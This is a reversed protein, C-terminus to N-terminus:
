EIEATRFRMTGVWVTVTAWLGLILLGAFLELTALEGGVLPGAEASTAGGEIDIDLHPSPPLIGHAIRGYSELPNGLMAVEVYRPLQDTPTAVVAYTGRVVPEWLAYAVVFGGVLTTLARIPRRTMASVGVGISAFAAAAICTLLTFQFVTLIPFRGYLGLVVAVGAVVGVLVIAWLVVIRSVLIGVLISRRAIPASLFVHISGRQRHGAVAGYTLLVALLPLVLDVAPGLLFATGTTGDVDVGTLYPISVGAVLVFAFGVTALWLGPSRALRRTEIAAVASVSM